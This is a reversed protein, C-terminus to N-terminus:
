SRILNGGFAVRGLSEPLFIIHINEEPRSIIAGVIKAVQKAEAAMENPDPLTKKLIEVIAPKASEHFNASNEAYQKWPLYTVKVWTGGKESEFLVGLHNAIEKVKNHPLEIEHEAVAIEISVIPM